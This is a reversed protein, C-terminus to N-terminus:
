NTTLADISPATMSTVSKNGKIRNFIRTFFGNYPVIADLAIVAAEFDIKRVVLARKLRKIEKLQEEVKAINLITSEAQVPNSGKNNRWNHFNIAVAIATMGFYVIRSSTRMFEHVNMESFKLYEM